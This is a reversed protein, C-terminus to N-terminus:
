REGGGRGRRCLNRVGGREDRMDEKASEEGEGLVLVTLEEEEKLSQYKSIENRTKGLIDFQSAEFCFPVTFELLM